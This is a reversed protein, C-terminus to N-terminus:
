LSLLIRCRECDIECISKGFRRIRPVEISILRHLKASLGVAMVLGVRDCVDICSVVHM